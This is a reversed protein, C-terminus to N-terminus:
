ARIAIGTRPSIAPEHEFARIASAERESNGLKIRSREGAEARVEKAGSGGLDFAHIRKM